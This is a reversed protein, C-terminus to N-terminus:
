TGPQLVFAVRISDAPGVPTSSFFVSDVQVTDGLLGAGAPPDALLGVCMTIAGSPFLTMPLRFRGSADTTTSWQDFTAEACLAGRVVAGPVAAGSTDTVTGTAAAVAVTEVMDVGDGCAIGGMLMAGALLGARSRTPTMGGRVM